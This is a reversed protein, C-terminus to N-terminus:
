SLKWVIESSKRQLIIKYRGVCLILRYSLVFMMLNSLSSTQANTPSKQHITELSLLLVM